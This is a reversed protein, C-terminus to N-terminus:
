HDASEQHCKNPDGREPQNLAPRFAVCLGSLMSCLGRPIGCLAARLRTRPLRTATGNSLPPISPLGPSARRGFAAVALGPSETPSHELFPSPWPRPLTQPCSIVMGLIKWFLGLITKEPQPTRAGALVFRRQAHGRELPPHLKERHESPPTERSETFAPLHRPSPPFRGLREARIILARWSGKRGRRRLNHFLLRRSPICRHM